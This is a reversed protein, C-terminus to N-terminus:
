REKKLNIEKYFKKVDFGNPYRSEWCEIEGINRTNFPLIELKLWEDNANCKSLEEFCKKCIWKKNYERIHSIFMQDKGCNECNIGM